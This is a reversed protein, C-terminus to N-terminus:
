GKNNSAESIESNSDPNVFGFLNVGQNQNLIDNYMAKSKRSTRENGNKNNTPAQKYNIPM